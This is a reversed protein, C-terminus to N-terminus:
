VERDRSFVWKKGKLIGWYQKGMEADLFNDIWVEWAEKHVKIGELGIYNDPDTVRKRVTRLFSSWEAHSFGSENRCAKLSKKM